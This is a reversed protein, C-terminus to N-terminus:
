GDVPGEALLDLFEPVVDEYVAWGHEGYEHPAMKVLFVDGWFHDRIGIDNVSSGRIWAPVSLNEPLDDVAFSFFVYYAGTCSSRHQQLLHFKQLDRYEWVRETNWYHRLDPVHFLFSDMGSSDSITSLSLLHAPAGDAPIRVGTITVPPPSAPREKKWGLFSWISAAM